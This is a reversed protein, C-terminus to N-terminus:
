KGNDLCEAYAIEDTMETMHRAIEFMLAGRNTPRMNYLERSNFCRRAASVALDVDAETARAVDALPQATAPNEVVIRDGNAGDLWQGDIYNKWYKKLEPM